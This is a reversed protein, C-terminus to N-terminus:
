YFYLEIYEAYSNTIKIQICCGTNVYSNFLDVLEQKGELQTSPNDGNTFLYSTNEDVYIIYTSYPLLGYDYKEFTGTILIEGNSGSITPNYVSAEGEYVDPTILAGYTGDTLPSASIVDFTNNYGDHLNRLESDAFIENWRLEYDTMSISNDRYFFQSYPDYKEATESSYISYLEFSDILRDGGSYRELYFYERGCNSVDYHVIWCFNEYYVYTISDASGGSAALVVVEGNIEDLIITENIENKLLVEEQGDNDVDERSSIIYGAETNYNEVIPLDSAYFVEKWYKDNGKAPISNNFFKDFINSTNAGQTTGVSDTDITFIGTVLEFNVKSEETTEVYTYIHKSNGSTKSICYGDEDYEYTCNFSNNNGYYESLVNGNDDYEYSISGWDNTEKIKNGNEDYEYLDTHSAGNQTYVRKYPKDENDNYYYNFTINDSGESILRGDSYEYKYDYSSYEDTSYNEMTGSYDMFSDVHQYQITGDENYFNHILLYQDLDVGDLINIAYEINKNNDYVYYEGSMNSSDSAGDDETISLLLKETRETSTTDEVSAEEKNGCSVIFLFCFTLSLAIIKKKM